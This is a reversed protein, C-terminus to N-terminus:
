PQDSPNSQSFQELQILLNQIRAELLKRARLKDHDIWIFGIELNLRKIEAKLGDIESLIAQVQYLAEAHRKLPLEGEKLNRILEEVKKIGLKRRIFIQMGCPNCIFYPKDNKDTRQDLQNGCLLCPLSAM